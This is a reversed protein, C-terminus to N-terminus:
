KIVEAEPQCEMRQRNILWDDLADQGNGRLLQFKIGLLGDSDAWAVMGKGSIPYGFPLEFTFDVVSSCSLPKVAHVAM